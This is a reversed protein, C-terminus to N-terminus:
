RPLPYHTLLPKLSRKCHRAFVRVARDERRHGRPRERDNRRARYERPMSHQRRLIADGTASAHHRLRDRSMTFRRAERREAGDSMLLGRREIIKPLALM